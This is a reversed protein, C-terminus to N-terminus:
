CRAALVNNRVGSQPDVLAAYSLGMQFGTLYGGLEAGAVVLRVSLALAFGILAERLVLALFTGPEIARPLGIVPAMFAGLVVILGVRVMPPAFTGGFLPAGVVLVSPRILAIAFVLVPSLDM